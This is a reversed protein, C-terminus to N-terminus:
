FRIKRFDNYKSTSFQKSMGRTEYLYAVHEFIIEKISADVEDMKQFKGAMYEIKIFEANNTNYIHIIDQNIKYLSIKMPDEQFKGFHSGEINHIKILPKIPLKIEIHYDIDCKFVAQWIQPFIAIGSNSEFSSIASQILNKLMLDEEAHDIKLFVKIENLDILPQKYAGKQTLEYLM